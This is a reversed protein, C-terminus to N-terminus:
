RPRPHFRHAAFKLSRFEPPRVFVQDKESVPRTSVAPKIRAILKKAAAVAASRDDGHESVVKRAFPPHNAQKGCWRSHVVHWQDSSTAPNGRRTVADAIV